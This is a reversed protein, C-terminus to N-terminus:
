GIRYSSLVPSPIHASILDSSAARLRAEELTAPLTLAAAEDKGRCGGLGEIGAWIMLALALYPNASPDPSHFVAFRQGDAVPVGVLRSLGDSSLDRALREYSREVPDLFVTMAALHGLMGAVMAQLTADSALPGPSMGINFGNGPQQAIPKPSFDAHFGNRFAMASVVRQFLMINDAATIADSPRFVIENQGPGKEHYSSQPHVGMRELTLCIERRVNECRDDPAIDMYGARDCPIDTPEGEEDLRFLYFNQRTDFVLDLGAAAADAAARLLLSRTDSECITGDPLHLSTFMQVVRGHEPRWPLPVLTGPDPRLFLEGGATGEFGPIASADIAIGREFARELEGPMISINKQRGFVDCFALRIFKVDEEQLYQAVEEESYEM